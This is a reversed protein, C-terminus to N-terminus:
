RPRTKNRLIQMSKEKRYVVRIGDMIFPCIPVSWYSQQQQSDLHIIVHINETLDHISMDDIMFNTHSSNELNTKSALWSSSKSFNSFGKNQLGTKVLNM